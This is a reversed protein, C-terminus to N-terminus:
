LAAAVELASSNAPIGETTKTTYFSSQYTLTFAGGGAHCEVLQTEKAQGYSGPDDGHPCTR